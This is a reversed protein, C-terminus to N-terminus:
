ADDSGVQRLIFEAERAIDILAQELEREGSKIRKVIRKIEKASLRIKMMDAEIKKDM